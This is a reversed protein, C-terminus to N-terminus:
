SMPPISQAFHFFNGPDYAVKIQQLRPLNTGYYAHQWDVLDPDIYNQYSAGSAYPRM